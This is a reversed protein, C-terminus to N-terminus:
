SSKASDALVDVRLALDAEMACRDLLRGLREEIAQLRSRVTQRSLGLAAATSTVNRGAVFYAELTDRFARGGDSEEGLPALYLQHLSDTLLPDQIVSALLGVEAYRVVSAKLRDAMPLAAAAQRHTLRWGRPGPGPEGFAIVGQAPALQECREMLASMEESELRQPSSLWAWIRGEEGEVMLLRKDFAGALERIAKPAATAILGIHDADLSYGLEGADILEGDLLRRVRDVRRQETSRVLVAAERRHEESVAELLRDFVSSSGHLLERLGTAGHFEMEEWVELILETLLSYGALYRRLVTQMQIGNRAAMRAQALLSTPIDLCRQEGRAIVALFFEVATALSARLGQLYEPDITERPDAIAYVRTAIAAEIEERSERLREALETRAAQVESDM